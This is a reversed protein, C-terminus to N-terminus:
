PASTTRVKPLIGAGNRALRHAMINKRRPCYTVKAQEISRALMLVREQLSNAKAQCAAKLASAIQKRVINYDSRVQVQRYGREVALQFARFIAFLEMDKPSVELPSFTESREEIIPGRRGNLRHSEQIVMGIGIKADKANHSADVTFTQKLLAMDYKVSSALAQLRAELAGIKEPILM